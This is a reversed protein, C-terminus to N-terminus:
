PRGHVLEEALQRRLETRYRALEGDAPGLLARDPGAAPAPVGRLAAVRDATSPHWEDTRSAPHAALRRDLESRDPRRSAAMAEFPDQGTRAAVSAAVLGRPTGVTSLLVATMSGAGALDAARADGDLAAALTVPRWLRHLLAQAGRVPASFVSMGAAGVAAAGERAMRNAVLAGGPGIEGYEATSRDITSQDATVTRTPTLVTRASTLLDDAVRVLVGAPSRWVQAYALEHALVALREDPDLVTWQPLGIVLTARGLYGVPLVAVPYTTDVALTTPARAGMASVVARTLAHVAPADQPSLRVARRPLGAARPLLQWVLLVWLGGWLWQTWGEDQAVLVGLAGVLTVEVLVVLVAVVVAPARGM